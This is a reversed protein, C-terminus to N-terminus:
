NDNSDDDSEFFDATQKSGSALYSSTALAAKDMVKSTGERTGAYNAVSGTPIGMSAGVAYADQDAGLYVFTWGGKTKEEILNFIKDRTWEKSANEEGDTMIVCLVEPKGRKLKLADETTRITQGIADYLPTYNAPVYTEANLDHVSGIKQMNHVVDIKESNFKTLTLWVTAKAEEALKAIYANFGSITEEKVSQM